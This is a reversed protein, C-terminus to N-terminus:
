APDEFPNDDRFPNDRSLNDLSHPSRSRPSNHEQIRLGLSDDSGDQSYGAISSRQSSSDSSSHQRNEDYSSAWSEINTQAKELFAIASNVVERQKQLMAEPTTDYGSQSHRSSFFSTLTSTRKKSSGEQAYRANHYGRSTAEYDRSMAEYDRLPIGLANKRVNIWNKVNNVSETLLSVARDDYNNNDQIFKAHDIANMLSYQMGPVEQYVVKREEALHREADRM